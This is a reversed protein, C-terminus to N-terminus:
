PACGEALRPVGLCEAYLAEVRDLVAESAYEREFRERAQLGRQRWQAPRQWAEVLADALGRADGAEVLEGEVGANLMDPIGGVRSAVVPKGCAYAELVCVPMNEVMSPLVLLECADLLQQKRAGQVWGHFALADEALGAQAAARCVAEVDGTGGCALRWRAGEAHALALAQVLVFIGKEAEVRGLFLLPGRGEAVARAERRPLAVTNPIVCAQARPEVQMVWRRWSETLVVFRRARRMVLRIWARGMPGRQAYFERFAGGHLSVLLPRGTLLACALVPTKRWFSSYSSTHVHVLSVQGLLMAAACQGWARLATWAKGLAGRGGNTAVYRVGAREFLGGDRWTRLVAAVGGPEDLSTGVMLVKM